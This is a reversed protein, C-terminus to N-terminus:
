KLGTTPTALSGRLSRRAGLAVRRAVSWVGVALMVDLGLRVFLPPQAFTLVFIVVVAAVAIGLPRQWRQCVVFLGAALLGCLLATVWLGIEAAESWAPERWGEARLKLGHIMRQEMVFGGLDMVSGAVQSQSAAPLQIALRVILRTRAGGDLPALYWLWSWGFTEPDVSDALLLAGPQVARVNLVGQILADGPKPGQWAPVIQNANRYVAQYEAAGTLSGVRNEIFTFSYFGGREDGLQAVWPWVATPSADITTAHTWRVQPDALLEDGPLRLSLEADSAGWRYIAPITAAFLALLLTCLVGFGALLRLLLRRM